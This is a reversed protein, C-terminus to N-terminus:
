LKDTSAISSTHRLAGKFIITYKCGNQHSVDQPFFRSVTAIIRKAANIISVVIINVGNGDFWLNPVIKQM